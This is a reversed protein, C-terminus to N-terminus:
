ASEAALGARLLLLRALLPDPGIAPAVAVPVGARAGAEACIRPIDERSHRGDALLCTLVQVRTAGRSALQVVGALIDPEAQELHAAGVLDHPRLRAVERALEILQENAAPARSGHDVLLLGLMGTM